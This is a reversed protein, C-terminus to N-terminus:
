RDRRKRFHQSDYFEGNRNKGRIDEDVIQGATGGFADTQKAKMLLQRRSSSLWMSALNFYLKNIM